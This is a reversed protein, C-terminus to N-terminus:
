SRSRKSSCEITADSSMPCGNQSTENKTADHLARVITEISAMDAGKVRGTERGNQLTVITPMATVGYQAALDSEDDVDVPRFVLPALREANLQELLAHM